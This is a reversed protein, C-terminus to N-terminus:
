DNVHQMKVALITDLLTENQEVDEKFEDTYFKNFLKEGLFTEDPVYDLFTENVGEEKRLFDINQKILAYKSSVYKLDSVDLYTLWSGFLKIKSRVYYALSSCLEMMEHITHNDMREWDRYCEETTLFNIRDKLLFATNYSKQLFNKIYSIDIKVFTDNVKEDITYQVYEPIEKNEDECLLEFGRQSKIDEIVKERSKIASDEWILQLDIICNNIQSILDNTDDFLKKYRESYFKYEGLDLKSIIDYLNAEPM